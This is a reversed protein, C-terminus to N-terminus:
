CQIIAIKRGKSNFRATIIRESVPEWSILARAAESTMQISVGEM